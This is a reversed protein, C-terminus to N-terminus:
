TLSKAPFRGLGLIQSRLGTCCKACCDAFKARSAAEVPTRNRPGVFRQQGLRHAFDAVLAHDRDLLRLRQFGLEFHNLPHL